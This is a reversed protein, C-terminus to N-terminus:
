FFIYIFVVVMMSHIYELYIYIGFVFKAYNYIGFEVPKERAWSSNTEIRPNCAVFHM